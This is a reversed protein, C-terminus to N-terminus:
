AEILCGLGSSSSLTAETRAAINGTEPTEIWGKKVPNEEIYIAVYTFQRATKIRTEYYGDQWGTENKALHANTNAGVHSMLSHMFKPLTWAERLGLLAHWHDPMVVFARLYIRERRVAFAFANVIDKRIEPTLVPKKPRLSKTVFFTAPADKLRHLRLNRSHPDSM